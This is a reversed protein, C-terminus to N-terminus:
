ESFDGDAVYFIYGMHAGNLYYKRRFLTADDNLLISNIAGFYEVTGYVQQTIDYRKLQVVEGPMFRVPPKDHGRLQIFVDDDKAKRMNLGPLHRLGIVQGLRNRLLQFYCHGLVDYDFGANGLDQRSLAPSASADYYKMLMNRRLYPITGHHANAGLLKALGKQSIPPEYYGHWPNLFLGLSDQLNNSLVSEPEGFSFAMSRNNDTM